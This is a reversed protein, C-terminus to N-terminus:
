FTNVDYEEYWGLSEWEQLLQISHCVSTLVNPAKLMRVVLEGVEDFDQDTCDKVTGGNEFSVGSVFVELRVHVSSM